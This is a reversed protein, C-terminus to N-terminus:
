FDALEERDASPPYGLQIKSLQEHLERNAKAKRANEELQKTGRCATLVVDLVDKEVAFKGPPMNCITEHIPGEIFKVPQNWYDDPYEREKPSYQQHQSVILVTNWYKLFEHDTPMHGREALGRVILDAMLLQYPDLLDFTQVTQWHPTTVAGKTQDGHSDFTFMRTPQLQDVLLKFDPRGEVDKLSLTIVPARPHKKSDAPTKWLLTGHDVWMMPLGLAPDLANEECTERTRTEAQAKKTGFLWALPAVLLAATAGM